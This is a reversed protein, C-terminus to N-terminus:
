QDLEKSQVDHSRNITIRLVAGNPTRIPKSPALRTLSTHKMVAAHGLRSLRIPQARRPLSKRRPTERRMRTHSVNMLGNGWPAESTNVVIRRAFPEKGSASLFSNIDAKQVHHGPAYFKCQIAVPGASPDVPVAVLDIGTDGTRRQPWEGWLYIEKFQHAFRADHALFQRTLEEFLTGKERESRARSRYEDLLADLASKSSAPGSDAVIGFSRDSKTPSTPTEPEMGLLAMFDDDRAATM